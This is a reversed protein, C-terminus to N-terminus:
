RTKYRKDQLPVTRLIKLAKNVDGDALHLASSCENYPKGTMKQLERVKADANLLSFMGSM